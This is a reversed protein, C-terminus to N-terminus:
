PKTLDIAQRLTDGREIQVAFERTGLRPHEIVLLYNGAPLELPQALPTKGLTEGDIRVVGWPKVQLDLYGSASPSPAYQLPASVVNGTAALKTKSEM